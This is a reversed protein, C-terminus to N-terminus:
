DTQEPEDWEPKVPVHTIHVWVGDGEETPLCVSMHLGPDATPGATFWPSEEGARWLHTKDQDDVNLDREYELVQIDEGEGLSLVYQIGEDASPFYVGAWDNDERTGFIHAGVDFGNVSVMPSCYNDGYWVLWLGM